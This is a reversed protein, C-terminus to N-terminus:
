EKGISAQREPEVSTIFERESCTTKWDVISDEAM